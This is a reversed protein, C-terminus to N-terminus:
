VLGFQKLHHLAHKYLLQVNENFTLEGFFPNGTQLNPQQEFTDFFYDLEKQLKNIASAIDPQKLPAGDESMLPNKTNPSFPSESMLFARFKALREGENIVPLRLKGSANKVADVFHEIMQQLSMVGWQKPTDANAAKLKQIFEKKLFAIKDTQM